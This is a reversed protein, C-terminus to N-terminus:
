YSVKDVLELIYVTQHKKDNKTCTILTLTTKNYDRYIAITGNKEQKYIKVIKYTYKYGNYTIYAKDGKKLKYLDKFYSHIGTGSHGAIIFNGKDVDPYSSGKIVTINKGVDNDKHDINLFGKKVNVKPIELYGVYYNNKNKKQTTKTETSEKRDGTDVPKAFALLDDDIKVEHVEEIEEIYEPTESNALYLKENMYEFAYDRKELFYNYSILSLGLVIIVLGLYISKRKNM